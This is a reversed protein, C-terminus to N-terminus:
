KKSEGKHLKIIFKYIIYVILVIVLLPIGVMLIILLIEAIPSIGFIRFDLSDGDAIVAYPESTSYDKVSKETIGLVNGNEDVYACKFRGYEKSIKIIDYYTRDSKMKLGDKDCYCDLCLVATDYIVIGGSSKHHLSLSIWGDNNLKAIESNRNIQLNEYRFKSNGNEIYKEILKKPPSTFDVYNKDDTDMKVLIDIYATNEPANNWELEVYYPDFDIAFANLPFISMFAIIIAYIVAIFKRMIIVRWVAKIDNYM